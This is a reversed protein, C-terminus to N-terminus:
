RADAMLSQPIYPIRYVVRGSADEALAVEAFSGLHGPQSWRLSYSQGVPLSVAYTASKATWEKARVSVVFRGSKADMVRLEPPRPKKFPSGRPFTVQVIAEALNTAAVAPAAQTKPEVTGGALAAHAFLSAVTFAAFRM